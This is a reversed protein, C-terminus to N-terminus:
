GKWAQTESDTLFQSINTALNLHSATHQHKMMYVNLTSGAISLNFLASPRWGGNRVFTLHSVLSNM